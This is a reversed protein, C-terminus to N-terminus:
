YLSPKTLSEKELPSEANKPTLTPTIKGVRCNSRSPVDANTAVNKM